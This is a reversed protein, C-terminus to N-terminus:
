TNLKESKKHIKVQHRLEQHMVRKAKIYSLTITQYRCLKGAADIQYITVKRMRHFHASDLAGRLYTKERQSKAEPFELSLSKKTTALITLNVLESTSSLVWLNQCEKQTAAGLSLFCEFSFLYPYIFLDV